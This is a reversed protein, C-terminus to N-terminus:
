KFQDQFRGVSMEKDNVVDRPNPVLSQQVQTQQQNTIQAPLTEGVTNKIFEVQDTYAKKMVENYKDQVDSANLDLGSLDSVFRPDIKIKVKDEAEVREYFKKELEGIRKGRVEQVEKQVFTNWKETTFEKPINNFGTLKTNIENLQTKTNGLEMNISDFRQGKDILEGIKAHDVGAPVFSKLRLFDNRQGQFSDYESQAIIIHGDPVNEINLTQTNFKVLGM